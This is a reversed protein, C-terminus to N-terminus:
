KVPVECTDNSCFKEGEAEFADKSNYVTSWNITDINLIKEYHQLTTIAEYPMQQYPMEEKIPLFSLSKLQGETARLLSGIEAKEDERFTLTVSVQNDSWYRQALIALNAKEWVSVDKETRVAPGQTPLEVVMTYEPNDVAPEIHYGAKALADLMPDGVSLRMRRIYTEFVPWHVGPTAGALLSVTGSPKVSTTKISERVGLWESYKRDWATVEDYGRNLWTRLDTWGYTEVFQAVGSVSCGIRRNRQMIANTEPWHTPLLTVSKAYLYAFKLTRKFDELNEHRFPFTEVLTCMEYSELSQESCPNTGAVRHDKNNPRDILRGYQRCLDLYIMGPEGNDTIREVIYDEIQDGVEMIITNNSAWGWDARDPNLDYNKLNLFEKSDRPGLAIEATRRRGGSVVCRGSLNNLDAIDTETITSGGRGAFLTRVAEFLEVLPGPGPAIGGFTKIPAGKPRVQSVDFEVTPRSAFFYSELLVGYANVWGERSDEVVHVEVEDTPTHIELKGAGKVDFGVGVGLMSMEMLRVFPTIAELVSRSSIKETSVFACNQLAASNQMGNVVYTGMHEIGRGPPLWKFTFMRDFAEKASRQGQAENWPLKMSRIHDKQISYVGEIVRRCTEHWREKKGNAKKRSYKSIFTIEGLTNGGGVPFGWEVNRKSYDKIFDEPLKFSLFDQNNTM